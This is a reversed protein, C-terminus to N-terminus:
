WLKEGSMIVVIVVLVIVLFGGWMLCGGSNQQAVKAPGTMSQIVEQGLESKNDKNELGGALLFIVGLVILGLVIEM